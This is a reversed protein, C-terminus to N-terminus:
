SCYGPFLSTIHIEVRSSYTTALAHLKPAARKSGDCCQCSRQKGNRKVAYQWHPRLIIANPPPDSLASYMQLQHFNDLQQLKSEHWKSWTKMKKLKRRTFKGLSREEPTIETLTIVQLLLDLQEAPVEQESYDKGTLITAISQLSHKDLNLFHQSCSAFPPPLSFAM